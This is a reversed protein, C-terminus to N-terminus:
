VELCYFGMRKLYQPSHLAQRLQFASSQYASCRKRQLEPMSYANIQINEASPIIWQIQNRKESLYPSDFLLATRRIPFHLEEEDIIDNPRGMISIIQNVDEVNIVERFQEKQFQSFLEAIRNEIDCMIETGDEEKDYHNKLTTIYTQLKEFADEDIHFIKGSLNITYTKKM